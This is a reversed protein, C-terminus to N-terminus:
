QEGSHNGSKRERKFDYMERDAERIADEMNGGSSFDAAGASASVRLEVGGEVVVPPAQEMTEEIRLKVLDAHARPMVLLFEDGGWRYLKDTPRMRSRLIGVFHQLLEDGAAHGYRDNVEKLNDLDLVVIAGFNARAHELGTGLSYARRNLTGTLPDKMSETLLKRHAIALEGHAADIERKADEMLILVMGYALLMQLMLDIFSNYRGLINFFDFGSSTFRDVVSAQFTIFYGIWTLSIIAFLIGTVTTGLTRRGQALSLLYWGCVALGAVQFPTQLLIIHRLEAVFVSLLLALGAVLIASRIQFNHSPHHRAFSITGVLLQHLFLLKCALYFFFLIRMSRDFEGAERTIVLPDLVFAALLAALALTLLIWANGWARFYTKRGAHARLLLFLGVLLAAGAAQLVLGIISIASGLAAADM